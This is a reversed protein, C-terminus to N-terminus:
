RNSLAQSDLPIGTVLAHLQVLFSLLFWIVFLLSYSLGVIPDSLEMLTFKSNQSVIFNWSGLIKGGNGLTLYIMFIVNWLQAIRHGRSAAIGSMVGMLCLVASIGSIWLFMDRNALNMGLAIILTAWSQVFVLSCNLIMLAAAVITVRPRYWKWFRVLSGVPRASIPKHDLFHQLDSKLTDAMAYRRNPDKELCKLCITELDKPVQAKLKRPSPPEEHIVQYLLMRPQGRFPREGTLLEYLIVGMSYIDSRRDVQHSEGKAQEPSMYAPTGLVQGTVTMMIEGAERKALGFDMLHPKGAADLMINGPKLDRHVVGQEHAHHLADCVTICLEVADRISLQHGSIWESLTMGEIFDSVIFPTDGDRGVEHVSVIHPHNLQAATRAERLFSDIEISSLQGQRPIKIAVTRQLENDGAKWVSGFAGAGVKEILEFQAINRTDDGKYTITELDRILSFGSGCSPCSIEDLERDHVIEIPNHCHPCRVHMRISGFLLRHVTISFPIRFDVGYPWFIPFHIPIGRSKRFEAEIM